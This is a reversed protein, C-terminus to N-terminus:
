AAPWLEDITLDLRSAIRRMVNGRPETKNTEYRLLTRRPIDFLVARDEQRPAGKARCAALYTELSLEVKESAACRPAIAADSM